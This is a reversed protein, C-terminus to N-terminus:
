SLVKDLFIKTAGTRKQMQKQIAHKIENRKIQRTFLELYARLETENNIVKVIPIEHNVETGSFEIAERNNLYYPGVITPLGAALPEMVSHVQKKFSGGVFAIDGQLYTEALIGVRDIIIISHIEDTQIQSFRIAQLHNKQFLIELECIHMEDVEHPVIIFQMQKNDIFKRLSPILIQEDEPWTSGAILTLKSEDKLKKMSQANQIRDIVQDYRTDGAVSAQIQQSLDIINKQDQLCVCFVHKMQEYTKKTLYKTPFKFRSSNDAFTASFIYVPIKNQNCQDVLVPWADTRAIFLSKPEFHNLFFQVSSDKEWPLICSFDVETMKQIMKKVSISSYTVLVQCNPMRKKLERIVPRAYEFEGSAAHIWFLEQNKNRKFNPLPLNKEQIIKQVKESFVFSFQNLLVQVTQIFINKYLWYVLSKM